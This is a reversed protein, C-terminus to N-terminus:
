ISPKIATGGASLSTFMFVSTAAAILTKKTNLMPHERWKLNM